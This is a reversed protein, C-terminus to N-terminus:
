VTSVYYLKQNPYPQLSLQPSYVLACFIYLTLSQTQLVIIHRISPKLRDDYKYFEHDSIYVQLM